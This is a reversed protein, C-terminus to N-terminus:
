AGSRALGIRLWSWDQFVFVRSAKLNLKFRCEHFLFEFLFIYPPSSKNEMPIYFMETHCTTPPFPSFFLLPQYYRSNSRTIVNQHFIVFLFMKRETGFVLSTDVSTANKFCRAISTFSFYPM